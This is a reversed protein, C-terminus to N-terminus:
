RDTKLSFSWNEGAKLSPSPRSSCWQSEQTEHKASRPARLKWFWMLWDRLIFIKIYACGTPETESPHPHASKSETKYFSFAFHSQILRPSSASAPNAMIITGAWTTISSRALGRPSKRKTTFLGWYQLCLLVTIFSSGWPEYHEGIKIVIEM